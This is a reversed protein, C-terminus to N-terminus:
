RSACPTMESSRPMGARVMRWWGVPGPALGSRTGFVTDAFRRAVYKMGTFSDAPPFIWRALPGSVSITTGIVGPLYVTCDDNLVLFDGETDAAHSSVLDRLLSHATWGSQFGTAAILADVKCQVIGDPGDLTVVLGTGDREVAALHGVRREIRGEREAAELIRKRDARAPYSGRATAQLLERREEREM